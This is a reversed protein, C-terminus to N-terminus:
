PKHRTTVPLIEVKKSVLYYMDADGSHIYIKDFM